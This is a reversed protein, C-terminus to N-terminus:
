LDPVDRAGPAEPFVAPHAQLAPLHAHPVVHRRCSGPEVSREAAPGNGADAAARHLRLPHGHGRSRREVGGVPAAVNWRIARGVEALTALLATRGAGFRARRQRYGDLFHISFDVGVGLVLSGFMSTAVGLPVRAYGMGAFVLLTAATVPVLAMLGARGRPYVVVLLLALALYTLAISRVQNTVIARVMALGIPIDGSFHVHVGQSAALPGLARELHAALAQDRRYDESKLFLEVRACAGDSTVFRLLGFPDESTMALTMLDALEDSALSPLAREDGNARHVEAVPVLYSLAGVVGPAAASLRSAEETLRVGASGHFLEAAGCLVLDFRHTGWFSENFEREARAWESAPDFNAIWNDEVRLGRLGPLALLLLGCGAVWGGHRAALREYPLLRGGAAAKAPVLWRVPMVVLIAPITTFTLVLAFLIGCASM